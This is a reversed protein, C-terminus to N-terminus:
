FGKFRRISGLTHGHPQKSRNVWDIVPQLLPTGRTPFLLADMDGFLVEARIEQGIQQCTLATETVM